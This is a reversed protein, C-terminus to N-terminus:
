SPRTFAALQAQPKALWSEGASYNPLFEFGRARCASEPDQAYHIRFVVDDVLMDAILASQWERLEEISASATESGNGARAFSKIAEGTRGLAQYVAGRLAHYGPEYPNLRVLTSLTLLLEDYRALQWLSKAAVELAGIQSRDDRLVSRSCSLAAKADGISLLYEARALSPKRSRRKGPQELVANM